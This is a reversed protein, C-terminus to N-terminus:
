FITRTVVLAEAHVVFVVPTAYAPPAFLVDSPGHIVIKNEFHLYFRRTSKNDWKLFQVNEFNHNFDVLLLIVSSSGEHVIWWSRKIVGLVRARPV